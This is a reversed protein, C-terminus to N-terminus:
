KIVVTNLKLLSATSSGSDSLDNELLSARKKPFEKLIWNILIKDQQM